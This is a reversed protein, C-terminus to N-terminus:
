FDDPHLTINLQQSSSQKSHCATHWHLTPMKSSTMGPWDCTAVPSSLHTGEGSMFTFGGPLQMVGGAAGATKLLTGNASAGGGASSNGASVPALYNTIPFSASSSAQMSTTTTAASTSTSTNGPLSAVTFAPKLTDQPGCSTFCFCPLSVCASSAATHGRVEGRGFVLM